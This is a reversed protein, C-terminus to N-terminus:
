LHKYRVTFLQDNLKTLNNFPVVSYTINDNFMNMEETDRFTPEVQPKWGNIIDSAAVLVNTFHLFWPIPYTGNCTIPIMELRLFGQPANTTDLGDSLLELRRGSIVQL